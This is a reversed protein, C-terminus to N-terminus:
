YATARTQGELIVVPGDPASSVGRLEPFTEGDLVRDTVAQINHNADESTPIDKVNRAGDAVLRSGRTLTTWTPHDAYYLSRLDDPAVTAKFWSVGTPFGAFLLTDPYGRVSRLLWRRVDNDEPRLMNPNDVVSRPVRRQALLGRYAAGFRPSDIEARVFAAIMFDDTVKVGVQM